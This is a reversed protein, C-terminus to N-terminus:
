EWACASPARHADRKWLRFARAEGRGGRESRRPAREARPRGRGDRLSLGAHSAILVAFCADSIRYEAQRWMPDDLTLLHEVRLLAEAPTEHQLACENLACALRWPFSKARAEAERRVRERVHRPTGIHFRLGLADDREARSGDRPHLPDVVRMEVVYAPPKYKKLGSPGLKGKLRVLVALEAESVSVQSLLMTGNEWRKALERRWTRGYQRAFIRLAEHEEISIMRKEEVRPAWIV